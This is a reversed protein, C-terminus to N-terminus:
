ENLAKWLAGFALTLANHPRLPHSLMTPDKIPSLMTPDKIPSLMTLDKIPSLM